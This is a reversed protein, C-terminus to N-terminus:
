DPKKYFEVFFCVTGLPEVSHLVEPVVVGPRNQSLEMDAGLADVRYRLKGETVIIKAWVGTKTSHEKKLSAPVTKETFVPTQKYSVFSDPLEFRDCRVCNLAMGLMSNRGQETM